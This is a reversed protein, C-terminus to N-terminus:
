LKAPPFHLHPPHEALSSLMRRRLNHDDVGSYSYHRYLRLAWPIMVAAVAILPPKALPKGLMFSTTLLYFILRINLTAAKFIVTNVVFLIQWWGCIMMMMLLMMMMMLQGAQLHRHQGCVPDAVVWLDDDDDDDVVDDDDDDDDTPRRSSSPTSWL